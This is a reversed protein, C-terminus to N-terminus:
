QSVLCTLALVNCCRERALCTSDRRLRMSGPWDRAVATGSNGHAAARTKLRRVRSLNDAGHM